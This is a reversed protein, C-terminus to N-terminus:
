LVVTGLKTDIRPSAHKSYRKSNDIQVGYKKFRPHGGPFFRAKSKLVGCPGQARGFQARAVQKGNRLYHGYVTKGPLFGSFYWTVKKSFKAEAPVTEVALPAVRVTTTATIEGGSLPLDTATITETKQGPLNFFPTPAGTVVSIQGATNVNATADVSGDGSTIMVQDGPTFGTGTLVMAAPNKGANVYCPQNAALTAAASAQSAFAAPAILIGLGLVVRRLRRGAVGANNM